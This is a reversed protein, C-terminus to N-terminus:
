AGKMIAADSPDGVHKAVVTKVYTFVPTLVAFAIAKQSATMDVVQAFTEVSILSLLSQAATWLVRELQDKRFKSAM